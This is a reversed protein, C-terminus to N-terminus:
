GDWLGIEDSFRRVIPDVVDQLASRVGTEDATEVDASWALLEALGADLIPDVVGLRRAAITRDTTWTRDHVSVIAAAALLTKRAIRRGLITPAVTDLQTAWRDRHRGIDGNFGRAARLDGAFPQTSRDRDPGALLVCYHRLFVRNGYAEDRDGVFDDDRAAGVEVGRCVGAYRRTFRETLEAADDSSLGITLLDVDSTPANAQGTAVSGYVHVSADPARERVGAAVDVLLQTFPERIRDASAGTRITGDAHLGEDPDRM